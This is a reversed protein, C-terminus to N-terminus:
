SSPVARSPRTARCDTALVTNEPFTIACESIIWTASGPAGPSGSVAPQVTNFGCDENAEALQAIVGLDQVLLRAAGDAVVADVGRCQFSLPLAIRDGEKQEICEAGAYGTIFADADYTEDLLNTKGLDVTAGWITIGGGIHNERANPGKGNQAFFDSSNVDVEVTRSEGDYLWVLANSLVVSSFLVNPTAVSCVGPAQSGVALRPRAEFNLNASKMTAVAPNSGAAYFEELETKMTITVADASSPIVPNSPDGTLTGAVTRKVEKFLVRGKVQLKEGNCDESITKRQPIVMECDAISFTATGLQGPNGETTVKVADSAFGCEDDAEALQILAGSTLVTLRAVGGGVQDAFLREIQCSSVLLVALSLSLLQAINRM